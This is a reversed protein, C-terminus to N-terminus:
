LKGIVIARQENPREPLDLLRDVVGFDPALTENAFQILGNFSAGFVDLEHVHRVGHFETHELILLGERSLCSAWTRFARVPDLAHDWANTYVIDWAQAWEPKMDHFDWEITNPFKSAGDGIETGLVLAHPLAQKFFRQEAGNRTGHCLVSSITGRASAYRAIHAVNAEKVFVVDIKQNFGDNQVKRYTAYDMASRKLPPDILLRARGILNKLRHKIM